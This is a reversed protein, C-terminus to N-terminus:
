DMEQLRALVATQIRRAETGRGYAEMFTVRMERALAHHVDLCGVGILFLLPEGRDNFLTGKPTGDSKHKRELQKLWMAIAEIEPHEEVIADIRFIGHGDGGIVDSSMLISIAKRILPSALNLVVPVPKEKKTTSMVCREKQIYKYCM